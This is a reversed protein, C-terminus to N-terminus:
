SFLLPLPVLPLLLAQLCDVNQNHSILLTLVHQLMGFM